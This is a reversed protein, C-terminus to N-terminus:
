YYNVIQEEIEIATSGLLESMLDLTKSFVERFEIEKMSQFNISHLQPYPKGEFTYKVDYMRLKIKIVDLLDAISKYKEQNSVVLKLLSFYRKHNEWSRAKIIKVEVLSNLKINKLLEIAETNDPNLSNFTKKFIAPIKKEKM